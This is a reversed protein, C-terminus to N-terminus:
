NSTQSKTMRVLEQEAAIYGFSAWQNGDVIKRFVELAKGKDGNYLFWNGLGYGISANSLTSASGEIQNKLDPVTLRGKYLKILKYYDFNEIIDLDDKIERDILGQASRGPEDGSRKASMYVWHAAAVQMDPNKARKFAEMFGAAGRGFDGTLYHALGLHYWINTQLTSTPINRANPVGDEEVEDPKSLTLDSARQLDNIADNFCRLTIYRHGRHRLFRADDPWRQIGASLTAIAERYQGLYGQRRALWIYSNAGPKAKFNSLAVNLNNTYAERATETLVPPVVKAKDVCVQSSVSMAFMAVIIMTKM